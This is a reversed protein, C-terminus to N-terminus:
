DMHLLSHHKAFYKGLHFILEISENSVNAVRVIWHDVKIHHFIVLRNSSHCKFKVLILYWNCSFVESRKTTSIIFVSISILVGLKMSNYSAKRCLTTVKIMMSTSSSLGNVTSHKCIFVIAQDDSM